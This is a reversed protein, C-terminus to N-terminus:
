PNENQCRPKSLDNKRKDYWKFFASSWVAVVTSSILVGFVAFISMILNETEHSWLSFRPVFIQYLGVGVAVVILLWLFIFCITILTRM